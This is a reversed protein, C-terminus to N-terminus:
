GISVREAKLPERTLEGPAIAEQFWVNLQVMAQSSTEISQLLDEPNDHEVFYYELNAKQFLPRHLSRRRHGKTTQVNRRSPICLLATLPGQIDDLPPREAAIPAFAFALRPDSLPSFGLPGPPTM